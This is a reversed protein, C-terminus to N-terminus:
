EKIVGLQERRIQCDPPYAQIQCDLGLSAASSRWLHAM